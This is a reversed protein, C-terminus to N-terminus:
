GSVAQSAEAQEQTLPVDHGTLRFSVGRFEGNAALWVSASSANLEVTEVSLGLAERWMEFHTPHDLQLNFHSLHSYITIYPRPMEAFEATLACLAEFIPAQESIRGHDPATFQIIPESIQATM